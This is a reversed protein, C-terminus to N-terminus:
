EVNKILVDLVKKSLKRFLNGGFYRILVPSVGYYCKVFFRGWVNTLLKEDRFKRLVLVEPACYDGYVFTAIYCSGPDKTLETLKVSHNGQKIANALRKGDEITRGPLLFRMSKQRNSVSIEIGADNDFYVINIIKKSVITRQQGGGVFYCKDGNLTLNGRGLKTWQQTSSSKGSYGRVGKKGYSVGNSHRVARTEYFDVYNVVSYNVLGTEDLKKPNIKFIPTANNEIIFGINDIFETLPVDKKLFNTGKKIHFETVGEDKKIFYDTILSIKKSQVSEILKADEYSINFTGILIDIREPIPTNNEYFYLLKETLKDKDIGNVGHAGMTTIVMRVIEDGSLLSSNFDDNTNAGCNSCFKSSDDLEEGCNVCYKVM